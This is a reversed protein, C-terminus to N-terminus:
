GGPSEYCGDFRDLLAQCFASRDRSVRTLIGTRERNDCRRAPRTPARDASELTM